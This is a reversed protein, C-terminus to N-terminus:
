DEMTLDDSLVRSATAFGDVMAPIGCYLHTQLPLERIEMASVGNALADRRHGAVQAEAGEAGFMEHRVAPGREYLEDPIVDDGTMPHGCIQRSIVVAIEDSNEEIGAWGLARALGSINRAGV